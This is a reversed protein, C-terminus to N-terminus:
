KKKAQRTPRGKSKKASKQKLLDQQQRRRIEGAAKQVASAGYKKTAEKVGKSALFRGIVGAAVAPGPM